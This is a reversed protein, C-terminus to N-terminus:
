ITKRKLFKVYALVRARHPALGVGPHSHRGAAPEPPDNVIPLVCSVYLGCLTVVYIKETDNLQSTM